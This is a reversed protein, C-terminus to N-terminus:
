ENGLLASVVTSAFEMNSKVAAFLTIIKWVRDLRNVALAPRMEDFVDTEVFPGISVIDDNKIWLCPRHSVPRDIGFAAPIEPTIRGIRKIGGALAPLNRRDPFHDLREDGIERRLTM